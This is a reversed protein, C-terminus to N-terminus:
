ARGSGIAGAAGASAMRKRRHERPNGLGGSEGRAKVRNLYSNGNQRRSTQSMGFRRSSSSLARATRRAADAGDKVVRRLRASIANPFAIRPTENTTFCRSLSSSSSSSSSSSLSSPLSSSRRM